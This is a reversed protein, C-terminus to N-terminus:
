FRWKLDVGFALLTGYSQWGPFGPNGTQLGAYAPEEKGTTPNPTDDAIEDCLATVGPACVPHVDLLEKDTDRPLLVHVQAYWSVEVAQGLLELGHASGLGLRVRDNDVYNTRGTQPPVPSPEWGLGVRLTRSPSDKYELGLRASVVDSFGTSRLGLNNRYASWQTWAADGTLTLGARSWAVGLNAQAPVYNVLVHIDQVLPFSSPDEQFGKVQVENKIDLAFGNETRYSLGIRLDDRPLLMLGAQLGTSGTQHNDVSMEVLDQRAADALYVRSATQATPMVSMGFGISLWDLLMWSAGVLITQHESREGILEWSLQNSFYQEREDPFHSRQHGIQNFPLMVAVGVRLKTFGFSGTAGVLFSYANPIDTVDGRAGLRYGSPIAPSGTGLDPLDYGTPRRKMRITVDDLTVGLGVGMGPAGLSMGAPNYFLATHDDALATQAGCTAGGRTGFGFLDGVSAESPRPCSALAFAALASTALLGAGFRGPSFTRPHM